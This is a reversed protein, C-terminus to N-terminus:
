FDAPRCCVPCSSAAVDPWISAARWDVVWDVMPLRAPGFPLGCGLWVFRLTSGGFGSADGVVRTSVWPDSVPTWASPTM